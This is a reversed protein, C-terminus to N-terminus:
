VNGLWKSRMMPPICTFLATVDYSTIIEDDVLKLNQIKGVFEQTNKLHHPSNGVLPGILKAAHKALNYTVSGISSIIPKITKELM